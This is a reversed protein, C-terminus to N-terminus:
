IKISISSVLFSTFFVNQVIQLQHADASLSDLAGQNEYVNTDYITLIFLPWGMLTGHSYSSRCVEAFVSRKLHIKRCFGHALHIFMNTLFTKGHKSQLSLSQNSTAMKRGEIM